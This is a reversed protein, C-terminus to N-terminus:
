TLATHPPQGNIRSYGREALWDASKRRKEITVDPHEVRAKHFAIEYSAERLGPPMFQKCWEIDGAELRDGALTRHFLPRM